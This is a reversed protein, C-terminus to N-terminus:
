PYHLVVDITTAGEVRITSERFTPGSLLHTVNNSTGWGETPRGLTSRDLGGSLNADHAVAVAYTGAPLDDFTCTMSGARAPHEQFRFALDPRGPFAEPADYLACRVRGADSAVNPLQVTLTAASAMAVSVLIM